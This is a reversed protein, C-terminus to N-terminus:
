FKEPLPFLEKNVFLTLDDGTKANKLDLKDNGDKPCAWKKWQFEKSIIRNYETKNLLAKGEKEEEFDDLFKLFYFGHFKSQIICQGALVM